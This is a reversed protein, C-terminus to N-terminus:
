ELSKWYDFTGLRRAIMSIHKCFLITAVVTKVMNANALVALDSASKELQSLECCLLVLLFALRLLVSAM